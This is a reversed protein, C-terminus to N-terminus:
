LSMAIKINKFLKKKDIDKLKAAQEVEILYV